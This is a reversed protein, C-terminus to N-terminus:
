VAPQMCTGHPLRWFRCSSGEGPQRLGRIRRFGRGRLGCCETGGNSTSHEINASNAEPDRSEVRSEGSVGLVIDNPVFEGSPQLRDLELELETYAISQFSMRHLPSVGHLAIAAVGFIVISLIVTMLAVAGDEDRRRSALRRM